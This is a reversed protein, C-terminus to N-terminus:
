PGTLALKARTVEGARIIVSTEENARRGEGEFGLRYAGPPVEGGVKLPRAAQGELNRAPEASAKLWLPIDDLVAQGEPAIPTLLVRGHVAALAEGGIDTLEVDLGGPMGGGLVLLETAVGASDGRPAVALVREYVLREGPPLHERHTLSIESEGADTSAQLATAEVPILVYATDTGIGALYPGVYPGPCGPVCRPAVLLTGGWRVADGLELRMSPQAGRNELTTSLLVARDAPRLSYRTAIVLSEDGAVHGRAEVWATGEDDRGTTLEKYLAQGAARGLYTAVRELEDRRRGADAADILHGGGEVRGLQEIIVAIQDNELLYDGAKGGALAGSLGEEAGGELRRVKASPASPAAAPCLEDHGGSRWRCMAGLRAAAGDVVIVGGSQLPPSCSASASLLGVLVAARRTM